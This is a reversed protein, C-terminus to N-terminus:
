KAQSCAGREPKKESLEIQKRIPALDFRPSQPTGWVRLKSRAGNLLDNETMHGAAM